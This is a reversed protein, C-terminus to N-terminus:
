PHKIVTNYSALFSESSPVRAQNMPDINGLPDLYGM